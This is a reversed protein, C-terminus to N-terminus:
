QEELEISNLWKELHDRIQTGDDYEKFLKHILDFPLHNLSKHKLVLCKKKQCHMIGLEYAVNPSFDAGQEPKDFLAIGHKCCYIAALYNDVDDSLFTWDPADARVCNFGHEEVIRKIEKYISENEARYKMMVFVNRDFPYRKLQRTLSGKKGVLTPMLKYSTTGNIYLTDDSEHRSSFSDMMNRIQAHFDEPNSNNIITVRDRDYYKEEDWLIKNRRTRFSIQEEDFGDKRMREKAEEKDTYIFVHKILGYPSLEKIIQKITPRSRVIAFTFEHRALSEILEEKSLAYDYEEGKSGYKYTYYHGKNKKEEFEEASVFTLDTTKAEEINRQERTTIKGVSCIDYDSQTKVFEMLDSKGTGAAGDVLFLKNM